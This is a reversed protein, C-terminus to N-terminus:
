VLAYRLNRKKLTKTNHYKVTLKAVNNYVYFSIDNSLMYIVSFWMFTVLNQIKCKYKKIVPIIPKRDIPITITYWRKLIESKM